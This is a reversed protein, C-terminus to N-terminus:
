LTQSFYKIKKKELYFRFSLLLTECRSSKLDSFIPNVIKPFKGWNIKINKKFLKKSNM